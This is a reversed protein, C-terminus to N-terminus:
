PNTECRSFQSTNGTSTDTSTATLAPSSIAPVSISWSTTSTTTTGVFTEGEPDGCSPNQFVEIRHTGAGVAGAITTTGGSTFITTIAPAPENNNGGSTLTIGALSSSAFISNGLISNGLTTSGDVAVGTSNNAIVNGSGAITGGITNDTAGTLVDVGPGANPLPASGTTDTGIYNGEITNATTGTNFLGVGDASNGSIVNRAGAVTGGVVNNQDGGGYFDVGAGNPLAGTGAADTGVYNGEIATDAVSSNARIAEGNGSIVNRRGATTGGITNNDAQYLQIGWANAIPAMGAVDTGIYNAEVLNGNSGEIAVGTGDNGSILNRASKSTGGVQTATSCQELLVGYQFNAVAATGAANTGIRDGSIINSATQTAQCMGTTANTVGAVDIGLFGNGSIVNRAGSTTGGITNSSSGDSIFVGRSGNALASTGRKNTGIYNGEVLNSNSGSIDIGDNTNGSILNRAAPTKGGITTSSAGGTILVGAANALAKTRAANTGIANGEITNQQTTADTLEVGATSNGSIVNTASSLTGGITNSASGQDILVGVGNALAASGSNGIYNGSVVNGGAGQLEVGVSWDVIKLGDVTSGGAVISLGTGAALNKGDLRILPTGAFGPQSTGDITVPQTITPLASVPAITHPGSGISFDIVNPGVTGNSATIAARLSGPGSDATTTVTFTAAARASVASGFVAAVCAGVVAARRLGSQVSM